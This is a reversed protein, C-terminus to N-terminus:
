QVLEDPVEVEAGLKSAVFCRMAAILLTPGFTVWDGDLNHIEVQYKGERNSQVWGKLHLGEIRDIIPGGQAWNQRPNWLRYDGDEFRVSVGYQIEIQDGQLAYGVAWDLGKGTLESTKILM